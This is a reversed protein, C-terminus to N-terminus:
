QKECNSLAPQGALELSSMDKGVTWFKGDKGSFRGTGSEVDLWYQQENLTVRASRGDNEYDVQFETGDACKYRHTGEIQSYEATDVAGEKVGSGVDEAAGGVAGGVEEVANKDEADAATKPPEKDKSCGLTAFAVVLAATTVVLKM